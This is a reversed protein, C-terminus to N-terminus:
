DTIEVRFNSIMWYYFDMHFQEVRSGAKVTIIQNTIGLLECPRNIYLYEGTSIRKVTLYQRM